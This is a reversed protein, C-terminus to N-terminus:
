PSSFTIASGQGQTIAKNWGKDRLYKKLEYPLALLSSCSSKDNQGLLYVHSKLFDLWTSVTNNVPVTIKLRFDWPPSLLNGFYHHHKEQFSPECWQFPTPFLLHIFEREYKRLSSNEQDSKIWIKQCLYILKRKRCCQQNWGPHHIAARSRGERHSFHLVKCWFHTGQWLELSLKVLSEAPFASTLGSTILTTCHM